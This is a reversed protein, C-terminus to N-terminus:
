LVDEQPRKTKYLAAGYRLKPKGDKRYCREILESLSTDESPNCILTNITRALRVRVSDSMSEYFPVDRLVFEGSHDKVYKIIEKKLEELLSSYEAMTVGSLKNKYKKALLEPIYQNVTMSKGAAEEEILKALTKELYITYKM